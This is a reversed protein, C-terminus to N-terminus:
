IHILSLHDSVGAEAGSSDGNATPSDSAAVPAAANEVADDVPKPKNPKDKKKDSKSAKAADADGPGTYFQM